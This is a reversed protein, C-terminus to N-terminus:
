EAQFAILPVMKQMFQQWKFFLVVLLTLSVAAMRIVMRYNNGYDRFPWFESLWCCHPSLFIMLVDFTTLQGFFRGIWLLSFLATVSIGILFQGNSTAPGTKKRTIWLALAAGCIGGALPMAAAGGKIYGALMTVMGTALLSMVLGATLSASVGRFALTMSSRLAVYLLAAGSLLVGFAVFQPWDNTNSEVSSLYVSDHWLIRGVSVFFTIRITAACFGSLSSRFNHQDNPVRVVGIFEVIMAAPLVIMLFRDLANVPPWRLEFGLIRYGTLLGLVLGVMFVFRALSPITARMALQSIFIALFSATFAALLAIVYQLPDPM